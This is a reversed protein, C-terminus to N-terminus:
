ADSVKKPLVRLREAERSKNKDPNLPIWSVSDSKYYKVRVHVTNGSLGEMEHGRAEKEITGIFTNEPSEPDTIEDISGAAEEMIVAHEVLEYASLVASVDPKFSTRVGAADSAEGLTDGEPVVSAPNDSTTTHGIRGLHCYRPGMAPKRWCSLCVQRTLKLNGDVSLISSCSSDECLCKNKAWLKLASDFLGSTSTELYADMTNSNMLEWFDEQEFREDDPYTGAVRCVSAQDRLGRRTESRLTSSIERIWKLATYPYWADQLAKSTFLSEDSTFVSRREAQANLARTANENSMAATLLEEYSELDVTAFVRRTSSTFYRGPLDFDRYVYNEVIRPENHGEVDKRKVAHDHFHMLHCLKNPCRKFFKFGIRKGQDVSLVEITPHDITGDM